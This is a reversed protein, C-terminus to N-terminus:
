RVGAGGTWGVRTESWSGSASALHTLDLLGFDTFYQNIANYSYSGKVEGFAVGGTGYVLVSPTVLTGFRARISADWTQISQGYFNETRFAREFPPSTPFPSHYSARSFVDLSSSTEVSGRWIAKSAPWSRVLSGGIDVFGGVTYSLKDKDFAFQTKKQLDAAPGALQAEGARVAGDVDQLVPGSGSSTVAGSGAVSGPRSSSSGGGGRAGSRHGGEGPQGAGAAALQRRCCEDQRQEGPWEEAGPRGRGLGRDIAGSAPSSPGPSSLLMQQSQM